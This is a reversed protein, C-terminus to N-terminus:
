GAKLVRQRLLPFHSRGYMSRKIYKLKNIKGEVPGNSYPLTFAAHLASGEKELGQAFTALDSIGTSAVQFMREYFVVSKSFPHKLYGACSEAFGELSSGEVHEAFPAHKERLRSAKEHRPPDLKERHQSGQPMQRFLSPKMEEIVEEVEEHSYREHSSLTMMRIQQVHNGEPNECPLAMGERNTDKETFSPLFSRLDALEKILHAGCLAVMQETTLM